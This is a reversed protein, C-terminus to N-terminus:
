PKLPARIARNAAGEEALFDLLAQDYEDIHDNADMQGQLWLDEEATLAADRAVESDLDRVPQRRFLSLIADDVDNLSIRGFFRGISSRQDNMFADLEAARAASLPANGSFGTLYNGVGQVFLTKWEPANHAHLAADKLRFLMEAERQSVAAPRDSARAFLVRRLLRTEAETVRGPALEGGGRTPGSGTLVMTEIQHLIYDKLRDPVSTAKELVTVLLELETMSDLKGNHDIREILWVAQAETVYGKPASTNVIFEGLAETFFATWESPAFHVHDNIFFIAEAEDPTIKGDSWGERRLTLIEEPAIHGDAAVQEALDRFHRFHMSM